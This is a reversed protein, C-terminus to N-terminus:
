STAFSAGNSPSPPEDSYRLVMFRNNIRSTLNPSKNTLHRARGDIQHLERIERKQLQTSQLTVSRLKPLIHANQGKLTCM